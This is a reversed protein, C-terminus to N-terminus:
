PRDNTILVGAKKLKNRLSTLTNGEGIINLCGACKATFVEQSDEWTDFEDIEKPITGTLKNSRFVTNESLLIYFEPSQCRNCCFRM